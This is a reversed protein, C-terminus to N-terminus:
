SCRRSVFFAAASAGIPFVAYLLLSSFFLDTRFTSLAAPKLPRVLAFETVTFGWTSADRVPLSSYRFFATCPTVGLRPLGIFPLV